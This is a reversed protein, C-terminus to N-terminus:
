QSPNEFIPNYDQMAFGLGSFSIERDWFRCVVITKDCGPTVNVDAGQGTDWDLPPLKSLFFTTGSQWERIRIKLGDREVFGRRWYRNPHADLTTIKVETNNIIELPGTEVLPSLDLGCTKLDGFVWGCVDNTSFGLAQDLDNKAGQAKIRVIGSRGGPNRIALNMTGSFILRINDDTDNITKEEIKVTTPPFPRGETIRTRFAGIDRSIDIVAESKGFGAISRKPIKIAIKPDSLFLGFRTDLDANANTMRITTIPTPPDGWQFTVLVYSEKTPAQEINAM